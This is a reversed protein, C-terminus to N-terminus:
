RPGEGLVIRLIEEADRLGTEDQVIRCRDLIAGMEVGPKMGRAILHRGLVADKEPAQVVSAEAAKALFHDGAPFAGAKADATTRGLHDARAVKVLMDISTGARALKRALTRYAKPTAQFKPHAFHAPALHHRVLGCVQAIIDPSVRLRDLFARSPEEGAEEHEPSRWRGEVFKTVAPKGFDHCLVGFMLPLDHAPDGTRFRVAVDLAMCTHVFVDGEPHWDPEQRCDVLARVEPFLVADVGCARMFELGKSPVRGKLLLKGWEECLREAPLERLTEAIRAGTAVLAADPELEFRAVFQAARLVRLPDEVFTSGDTMRLRRAKLDDRGHFPDFVEGTLPDQGMANMTFDRRRAAEELPMAPDAEIRFGRHGAGTKSDRRPVSVDVGLVKLVAFSKGVTEVEDLPALARELVDLPLGYVEVDFDKPELGLFADRVGGGVLLARGGAKRVAEAIKRVADNV